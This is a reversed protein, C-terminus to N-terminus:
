PLGQAPGPEWPASPSPLLCRRNLMCIECVPDAEWDPLHTPPFSVRGPAWARLDGFLHVSLRTRLHPASIVLFTVRLSFLFTVARFPHETSGQDGNIETPGERPPDALFLLPPTPMTKTPPLQKSRPSDRRKWWRFM